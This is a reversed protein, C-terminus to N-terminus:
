ARVAVVELYEGGYQTTGDTARNHQAWLQELDERLAAQKDSDLAAFARNTPGYYMRYFEVVEAPGFPYSFPYQQRTFTLESVQDQFREQVTPEKGWLLPSPM